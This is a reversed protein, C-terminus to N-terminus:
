EPSRHRRKLASENLMGIRGEPGVVWPLGLANWGAKDFQRWTEGDDYSVNSGNPGVAIWIQSNHDWALASRYGSPPDSAATWTLGGDSTRAATNGRQNPQKFDGGVAVGHRSDRFGISFIGATETNQSLPLKASTWIGPRNRVGPHFHFIRSGGPGGTAFYASMGDPGLALASNSAAFASEGHPDAELGASEDHLWHRGGDNTRFITFRGNVPDGLLMGQQQNWFAIADWFGTTERNAFVLHWHACGDSTEYLRSASGPGSSMAIAYNADWGWVGRFDLNGADPPIACQQWLYGDDESRLVVGNTGSAWVVSSGANHVARLTSKTGSHEADWQALASSAFALPIVTAALRVFRRWIPITV